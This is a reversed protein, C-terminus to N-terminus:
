PQFFRFLRFGFAAPLLALCIRLHHILLKHLSDGSSSFRLPLDLGNLVCQEAVEGGDDVHFGFQEAGPVASRFVAVNM